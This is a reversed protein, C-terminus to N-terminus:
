FNVSRRQCACLCLASRLDQRVLEEQIRGLRYRRVEDLDCPPTTYEMAGHQRVTMLESTKLVNM